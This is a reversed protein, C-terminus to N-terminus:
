KFLFRAAAKHDGNFRALAGHIQARGFRHAKVMPEPQDFMDRLTRWSERRPDGADRESRKLIDQLMQRPTREETGLSANLVVMQDTDAGYQLLLRITELPDSSSDDFSRLAEYLASGIYKQDHTLDEPAPTFNVNAGHELMRRLTDIGEGKAEEILPTSAIRDLDYDRAIVVFDLSAGSKMVDELAEDIDDAYDDNEAYWNDYADILERQAEEQELPVAAM